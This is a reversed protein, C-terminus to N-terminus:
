HALAAAVRRPGNGDCITSAAKAMMTRSGTDKALDQLAAALTETSTTSAPGLTRLAGAHDLGDLVARQSEATMMAITPLGLSCREWAAAGGAGIAIDANALITALREATIDIHLETDTRNTDVAARVRNLHPASSSLIIDVAVELEAQAIAALARSTHDDLDTSGVSIVIRTVESREFRARLATERSAAFPARLLAFEPGIMMKCAESVLGSYDEVRRGLTQDLLLDANHPRDALDDIVLIRKAWDRCRDEYGADLAYSDVVLLDFGDPWIDGLIGADDLAADTEVFEASAGFGQGLKRTMTNTLLTPTWGAEELADALTLCRVLHGAGIETSAETRIIAM